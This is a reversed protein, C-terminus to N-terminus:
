GSDFWSLALAKGARDGRRVEDFQDPL